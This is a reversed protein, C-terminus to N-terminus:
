QEWTVRYFKDGENVANEDVYLTDTLTWSPHAPFSYPQDSIYLNYIRAETQAPGSIVADAGQVWICLDEISHLDGGLTGDALIRKAYANCVDGLQHRMIAVMGGEGDSCVNHSIWAENTVIEAMLQGDVGWVKEGALSIKQGYLDFGTVPIVDHTFGIYLYDEKYIAPNDQTVRMETVSIPDVGWLPNGNLDLRQAWLAGNTNYQRGV